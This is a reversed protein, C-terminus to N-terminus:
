HDIIKDLYATILPWIEDTKTGQYSTCINKKRNLNLYLM